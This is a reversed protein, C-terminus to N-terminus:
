SKISNGVTTVATKSPRLDTLKRVKEPEITDTEEDKEKDEEEKGLIAALTPAHQLQEELYNLMTAVSNVALVHM